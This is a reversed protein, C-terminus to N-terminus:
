EKKVIPEEWKANNDQRQQQACAEQQDESCMDRCMEGHGAFFHWGFCSQYKKGNPQKEASSNPNETGM